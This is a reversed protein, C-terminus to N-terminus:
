LLKLIIQDLIMMGSYTPVLRNNEIELYSSDVMEQIEKEKEKLLDLKFLDQYLALDLGELTRLNLMIMYTRLDNSSIEEEEEVYKGKLYNTLNTTNKYRIYDIYGAAGLGIGYYKEDRWYTLNHLSEKGELAFNSVEYHNYGLNTLRHHVEDYLDCYIDGELEKIKNLYFVTHPNVSLSYTSIHNPKLSLINDLDKDLMKKTVNPLGLILDINFNDFGVEKLSKVAIEVDKFTHHRNISKLIKDDTSEVGISIRNVGYKKMMKLKELSLSEPNAEVTYEKVSKTYGKVMELLRLFLDDDLSTPTGGGIYITELDFNDVKQKLEEELKDLYSVAIFRFYQLKPFDCYDCISECFPIHIYLSTPKNTM